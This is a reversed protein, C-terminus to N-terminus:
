VRQMMIAATNAGGLKGFLLKTRKVIGADVSGNRCRYFEAAAEKGNKYNYIISVDFLLLGVVFLFM